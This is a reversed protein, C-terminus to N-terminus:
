VVVYVVLMDFAKNDIWGNAISRSAVPCTYPLGASGHFAKSSGCKAM